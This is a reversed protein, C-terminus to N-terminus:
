VLSLVGNERGDFSYLSCHCLDHPSSLNVVHARNSVLRKSAAIKLVVAEKFTPSKVDTVYCSM